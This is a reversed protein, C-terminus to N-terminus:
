VGTASIERAIVHTRQALASISCDQFGRVASLLRDKLSGTWKCPLARAGLMMGCVSGATAGNCDADWGGRVATVITREFDGDGHLLAMVVLAANNIAHVAHYHGYKRDIREWVKEWNNLKGSWSVVDSVAESLRSHEPIESLGISIVEEPDASIFTAALMAAVFMEGYIGNKVHSIAADRYAFEAALEPWGPAVYGWVDARIQAGIWERYPNQRSASGPPAVGKVLNRYAVREATNVGRYPMRDLWTYAVDDSTFGPGKSELVALGLCPYDMDDDRAMCEIHGRTCEPSRMRYEDPIEPPYKQSYPTYPIYDDLPLAGVFELYRDIMSKPWKEVPKGLACGVARGLWGGHVRDLLMDESVDVAVRRPGDPREERITDLDSPESYPFSAEPEIDELEAMLLHLQQEDNAKLAIQIRPAIAALDCGEETRQAMEFRIVADVAEWPSMGWNDITM